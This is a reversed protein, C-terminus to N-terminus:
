RGRRTKPYTLNYPSFPRTRTASWRLSLETRNEAMREDLSPELLWRCIWGAVILAAFLLIGSLFVYIM